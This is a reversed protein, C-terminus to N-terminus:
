IGFRHVKCKETFGTEGRDKALTSIQLESDWPLPLPHDWGPWLLVLLSPLFLPCPRGPHATIPFSLLELTVLFGFLPTTVGSGGQCHLLDDQLTVGLTLPPSCYSGMIVTQKLDEGIFYFTLEQYCLLLSIVKVWPSLNVDGLGPCIVDRVKQYSTRLVCCWTQPMTALLKHCADLWSSSALSGLNLLLIVPRYEEFVDFDFFIFGLFSNWVLFVWLRSLKFAIHSGPHSGPGPYFIAFLSIIPVISM